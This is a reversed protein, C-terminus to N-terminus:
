SRCNMSSRTALAPHSISDTCSGMAGMMWFWKTQRGMQRTPEWGQRMLEPLRSALGDSLARLPIQVWVGNGTPPNLGGADASEAM